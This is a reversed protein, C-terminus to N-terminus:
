AFRGLHEFVDGLLLVDTMLYADHFNQLTKCNFAAWADQARQYEEDTVHTENLTNYFMEKSPLQTEQFKSNDTMYNYPYVGKRWTRVLVTNRSSILIFADPPLTNVLSDLSANLFQLSDLFRLKGIQFAIFKETNSPIVNIQSGRQAINREYGKLILHADFGKM